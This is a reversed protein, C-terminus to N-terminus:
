AQRRPPRLRRAVARAVAEPDDGLGPPLNGNIWLAALGHVLAWAAVGAELQDGQPRPGGYLVAAAAERAAVVDPDDHRYLDPRFMVDFHARHGVAFRVYAVGVDLFSGGKDRVETLAAALRDYGDAAIATLLGTKDGFHHAPATHSVGVRRAIDRLSLSAVGDETIALVAAEILARRLDGHHYPRAVGPDYGSRESSL